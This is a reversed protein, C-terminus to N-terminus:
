SCPPFWDIGKLTTDCNSARANLKQHVIHTENLVRALDGFQRLCDLIITTYYKNSSKTPEKSRVPNIICLSCQTLRERFIRLTNSIRLYNTDCCESLAAM